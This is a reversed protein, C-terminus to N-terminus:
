CQFTVNTREVTNGGRASFGTGESKLAIMGNPLSTKPTPVQDMWTLPTDCVFCSSPGDEEAKKTTRNSPPAMFLKICSLCLVHGCKVAMAPSSANTLTKRCSPCIRTDTAKTPEPQVDFHITLLHSMTLAHPSDSASAPCVAVPKAKQSAELLKADKTADPTLSPTWFSPLSPKSAKEDEIAKRAKARDEKAIRELEDADLEFKRKGSIIRLTDNNEGKSTEDPKAAPRAGNSLGAQTLEFDRVARRQDEDNHAAQVRITEREAQRRAKEARKMDQKQALMNALACERCFVDGRPCSVPDRALELCLSCSGFPLFSDSHLRASKSAWNAKALSREHSTFVPRTTNRKSHSM